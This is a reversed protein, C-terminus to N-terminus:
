PESRQFVATLYRNKFGFRCLAWFRVLLAAPHRLYHRFLNGPVAQTRKKRTRKFLSTFRFYVQDQYCKTGTPRFGYKGFLATFSRESFDHLHYPNGDKTPTIPVSAIIRGGDVVMTTLHAIFREPDPLHEITELSVITDYREDPAFKMADGHLFQLNPAQYRQHAYAVAAPDCDLGFCAAGIQARALIATGYGAGCAIDLLREGRSHDAAFRYRALHLDVSEREVEDETPTDDPYIRELSPQIAM